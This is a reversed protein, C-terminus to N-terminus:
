STILPFLLNAQLRHDGKVVRTDFGIQEYQLLTESRQNETFYPDEDGVIFLPKQKNEQFEPIKLDPPFVCAWLILQDFYDPKHVHFRAATAGGQSFGLLIRRKIGELSIQEMLEQLMNMNDRIDDERCERTMWSAGVRGSSGELYFRHLGEPVVILWDEPTESFKKIFYRGLQGYGHLAVMVNKASKPDGLTFYRVTKPTTFTQEQWSKGMGMQKEYRQNTVFTTDKEREAKSTHCIIPTNPM